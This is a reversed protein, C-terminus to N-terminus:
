SARRGTTSRQVEAGVISIKSKWEGTQKQESSKWGAGSWKRSQEKEVWVSQDRNAQGKHTKM